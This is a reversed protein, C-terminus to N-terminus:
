AARSWGHDDNEPHFVRRHEALLGPWEFRQGCECRCRNTIPEDVEELATLLIEVVLGYDGCECAELAQIIALRSM